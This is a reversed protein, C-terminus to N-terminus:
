GHIPTIEVHDLTVEYNEEIDMMRLSLEYWLTDEPIVV